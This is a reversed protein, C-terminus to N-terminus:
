FDLIVDSCKFVGGDGKAKSTKIQLLQLTQEDLETKKLLDGIEGTVEIPSGLLRLAFIKAVQKVIYYEDNIHRKLGVLTAFLKQFYLFESKLMIGKLEVKELTQTLAEVPDKYNAQNNYFIEWFVQRQEANQFNVYRELLQFAEAPRKTTILLIVKVLGQVVDPQILVSQGLDINVMTKKTGVITHEALQNEEHPDIDLIVVGGPANMYMLLQNLVENISAKAMEKQSWGVMANPKLQSFRSSKVYEEFLLNESSWDEMPQPISVDTINGFRRVLWPRSKYSVKHQKMMQAERLFNMETKIIREMEKELVELNDVRLEPDAQIAAIVQRAIEFERYTKEFVMEQTAMVVVKRGDKLTVLYGVKMSGSGLEKDFSKIQNFKEEPLRSKVLQIFAMKSLKQADGKFVELVVQYERPLNFGHSAILQAMKKETVGGYEILLKLLEPGTLSDGKANNSLLWMLRTSLETPKLVNLYINLVKRLYQPMSADAFLLKNILLNEAEKDGSIGRLFLARYAVLREEPHTESIFDRIENLKFKIGRSKAAESRHKTAFFRETIKNSIEPDIENDIGSMYLILKSRQLPTLISAYEDMLELMAKSAVHYPTESNKSKMKEVLVLDEVTMSRKKTAKDLFEDRHRSAEPFVSEIETEVPLNFKGAQDKLKTLLEIAKDKGIGRKQARYAVFEEWALEIIKLRDFISDANKLAEIVEKGWLEKAKLYIRILDIAAWLKARYGIEIDGYEKLLYTYAQERVRLSRINKVLDLLYERRNEKSNKTKFVPARIFDFIAYDVDLSWPTMDRIQKFVQAHDTRGFYQQDIDKSFIDVQLKSLAWYIPKVFSTMTTPTIRVIMYGIYKIIVHVREFIRLASDTKGIIKNVYLKVRTEFGPQQGEWADYQNLKKIFANFFKERYKVAYVSFMKRLDTSLFDTVPSKLGLVKGLEVLLYSVAEMDAKSKILATAKSWSILTFRANGDNVSNENLSSEQWMEGLLSSTLMAEAADQTVGFRYLFISWKEYILTKYFKELASNDATKSLNTKLIKGIDSDENFLFFDGYAKSELPLMAREESDYLSNQLSPAHKARYYGVLDKAKIEEINIGEYHAVKLAFEEALKAFQKLQEPNNGELIEESIKYSPTIFSKILDSSGKMSSLRPGYKETSTKYLGSDLLGSLNRISNTNFLDGIANKTVQLADFYTRLERRVIFYETPIEAKSGDVTPEALQILKNLMEIFQAKVSEPVDRQKVAIDFAAAINELESRVGKGYQQIRKQEDEELLSAFLQTKAETSLAELHQTTLIPKENKKVVKEDNEREPMPRASAMNKINGSVRQSLINPVESKLDVLDQYAEPLKKLSSILRPIMKFGGVKFQDIVIASLEATSHMQNKDQIAKANVMLERIEQWLSAYHGKSALENLFTELSYQGTMLAQSYEAEEIFLRQLLLVMQLSKIQFEIQSEGVLKVEKQNLYAAYQKWFDASSKSREILLQVVDKPSYKNQTLSTILAQGSNRGLAIIFFSALEPTLNIQNTNRGSQLYNIDHVSNFSGEKVRERNRVFHTVNNNQNEKVAESFIKDTATKPNSMRELFNGIEFHPNEVMELSLEAMMPYMAKITPKGYNDGLPIKTEIFDLTTQLNKSLHLHRRATKALLKSEFERDLDNSSGNFRYRFKFGRHIYNELIKELAIVDECEAVAHLLEGMVYKKDVITGIKSIRNLFDEVEEVKLSGRNYKNEKNEPQLLSIQRDIIAAKLRRFASRSNSEDNSGNSTAKGGMKSEFRNLSGILDDIDEMSNIENLIAAYANVTAVVGRSTVLSTSVSQVKTLLDELQREKERASLKKYDESEILRLVVEVSTRSVHEDGRPNLTEKSHDKSGNGKTKLGMERKATKSTKLQEVLESLAAIRFWPKPHSDMAASVKQFFSKHQHMKNLIEFADVLAEPDYGAEAALRLGFEDAALEQYVRTTASTKETDGNMVHGLEHGLIIALISKSRAKITAVLEEGLAAKFLEPQSIVELLGKTVMVYYVNVEKIPMELLQSGSIVGANVSKDSAFFIKIIADESIKGTRRFDALISQIQTYYRPAHYIGGTLFTNIYYKEQKELQERLAPKQLKIDLYDESSKDKAFSLLPVSLNLVIFM